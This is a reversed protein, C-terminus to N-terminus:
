GPLAAEGLRGSSVENKAVAFRRRYGKTRGREPLPTIFLVIL